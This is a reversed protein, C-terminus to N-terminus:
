VAHDAVAAHHGVAGREGSVHQHPVVDGQAPKGGNVLEGADAVVREDGASRHHRHVHRGVAARLSVAGLQYPEVGDPQGPVAEALLLDVADLVRVFDEKAGLEAEVFCNGLQFGLVSAMRLDFGQEIEHLIRLAAQGASTPPASLHRFSLRAANAENGASSAQRVKKGAR